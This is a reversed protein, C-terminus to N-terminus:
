ALILFLLVNIYLVNFFFTIKVEKLLKKDKNSVKKIKILKKKEM